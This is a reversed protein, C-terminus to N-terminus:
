GALVGLIVIVILLEILTFGSENRRAERIRDLVIGTREHAACNSRDSPRLRNGVVQTNSARGGGLKGRTTSRHCFQGGTTGRDARCAAVHTSRGRRIRSLETVGWLGFSGEHM